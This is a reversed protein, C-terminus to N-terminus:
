CACAELRLPALETVAEGDGDGASEESSDGDGVADFKGDGGDVADEEAEEEM